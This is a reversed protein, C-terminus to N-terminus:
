CHLVGFWWPIKRSYPKKKYFVKTTFFGVIFSITLKKKKKTIQHDTLAMTTISWQQAQSLATVAYHKSSVHDSMAIIGHDKNYKILGKWSQTSNQNNEQQQMNHCMICKM